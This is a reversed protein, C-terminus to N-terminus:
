ISKVIICKRLLEGQTKTITSKSHLSVPVIAAAAVVVVVIVIVVVVSVM